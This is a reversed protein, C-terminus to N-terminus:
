KPHLAPKPNFFYFSLKSAHWIWSAFIRFVPHLGYTCQIRNIGARWGEKLLSIVANNILFFYLLSRTFMYRRTYLIQVINTSDIIPLTKDRNWIRVNCSNQLRSYMTQRNVNMKCFAVNFRSNCSLKASQLSTGKFFYNGWFHSPPKAM